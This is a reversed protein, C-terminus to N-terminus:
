IVGFLESPNQPSSNEVIGPLKLPAARDDHTATLTAM